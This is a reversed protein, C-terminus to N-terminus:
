RIVAVQHLREMEMKIIVDHGGESARWKYLAEDVSDAEVLYHMTVVASNSPDTSNSVEASIRWMNTVIKTM